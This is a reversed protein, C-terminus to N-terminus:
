LTGGNKGIVDARQIIDQWIAIEKLSQKNAIEDQKDYAAQAEIGLLVLVVRSLNFPRASNLTEDLKAIYRSVLEKNNSDSQLLVKKVAKFQKMMFHYSHNTSNYTIDRESTEFQKDAVLDIILLANKIIHEQETQQQAFTSKRM